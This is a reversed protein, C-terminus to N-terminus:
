SQSFLPAIVTLRTGQGPRSHVALHGNILEVREAAGALGYHGERVLEVWRSPMEFGYGNDEIELEVQAEDYRFRVVVESARAHRIVNSLAQQYIRFLALRLHDPLTQGDYMLDLNIKISPNEQQFRDAHERIAGELGFPALTPPRLEGCIARLINIVHNLEQEVADFELRSADDTVDDRMSSIQYILSYLDQLPEDHLEQALQLREKERSDVLRRQVEALEEEMQKRQSIDEVMLIALRPTGDPNYVVSFLLNVWVPIKDKRLFRLESQFFNSEGSILREIDPGYHYLDKPYLMQNLDMGVLETTSFGLMSELYPNALIVKHNIDVLAIGSPSGEFITRFRAESERLASEAKVRSSVDVSLGIMGSINGNDDVIPSYRTEFVGFETSDQQIIEEGALARKISRFVQSDEPMTEYISTGTYSGPKVGIASLGRGELLTIRGECDVSWLIVPAGTVVARLLEERARLDEEMQKRASVDQSTGVMKIPLGADDTIVTGRGRLHRVQGDPRVIRHDYEFAGPNEFATEIARRTNQYDDPHDLKLYAELTGPFASPAIGYIEFMTKSWTIQDSVIDWEWSGMRAVRQAELLKRESTKLLELNSLREVMRGVQVGMVALSDLLLHNPENTTETFLELIAIVEDGVKVPFAFGSIIGCERFVDARPLENVASDTVWMPKGTVYVIGPLGVGPMYVVEDTREKFARFREPDRMFWWPTSQLPENETKPMTYVHGLPWGTHVCISALVSQMVEPITSAENAVMMVERNLYVLGSREAVQKELVENTRRLEEVVQLREITAAVLNAVSQLFILDDSNFADVKRSYAEVVGYKVGQMTIAASIGSKVGHLDPLDPCKIKSNRRFSTHISGEIGRIIYGPLLNEDAPVSMGDRIMRDNSHALLIFENEVSLYRLIHCHEADLARATEALTATLYTQLDTESIAERTIRELAEPHRFKHSSQTHERKKERM